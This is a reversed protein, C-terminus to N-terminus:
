RREEKQKGESVLESTDAGLENTSKLIMELGVHFELNSVLIKRSKDYPVLVRISFWVFGILQFAAHSTRDHVRDVYAAPHQRM